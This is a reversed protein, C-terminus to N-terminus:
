SNRENVDAAIRELETIRAEVEDVEIAKIAHALVSHAARVRCSAPAAPDLMIKLLTTAAATSAQQLRAISQAFAERRAIRYAAAFEPNKLWRLLTKASIGASRAAEELNRQTLM